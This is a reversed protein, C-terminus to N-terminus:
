QRYGVTTVTVYCVCRRLMCPCLTRNLNGQTLAILQGAALLLRARKLHGQNSHLTNILLTLKVSSTAGVDPSMGQFKIGSSPMSAKCWCLPEILVPCVGEQEDSTTTCEEKPQIILSAESYFLVPNTRPERLKLPLTEFKEFQIMECFNDDVNRSHFGKDSMVVNIPKVSDWRYSASAERPCRVPQGLRTREAADGLATALGEVPLETWGADVCGALVM